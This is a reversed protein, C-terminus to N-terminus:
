SCKGNLNRKEKKWQQFCEGDRLERSVAFLFDCLVGGSRCLDKGGKGGEQLVHWSKGSVKPSATISPSKEEQGLRAPLAWHPCLLGQGLRQCRGQATGRIGPVICLATAACLLPPAPPARDRSGAQGRGGAAWLAWGWSHRLWQDSTVQVVGHDFSAGVLGWWLQTSGDWGLWASQLAWRWWGM